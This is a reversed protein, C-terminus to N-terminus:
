FEEHYGWTSVFWTQTESSLNVCYFVNTDESIIEAIKAIAKKIVVVCSSRSLSWNL